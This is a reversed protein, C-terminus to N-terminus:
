AASHGLVLADAQAADTARQRQIELLQRVRERVATPDLGLVDCVNSFAFPWDPRDELVWNCAETFDKFRPGRRADTNKIICDIANELVAAVLRTEPSAPARSREWWQSPLIITPECISAVNYANVSHRMM